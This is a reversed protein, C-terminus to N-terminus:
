PSLGAPLYGKGSVLARLVALTSADKRPEEGWSGDRNQAAVIWPVSRMIGARAIPHDFAM